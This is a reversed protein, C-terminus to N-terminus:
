KTEKKAPKCDKAWPCMRCKKGNEKFSVEYKGFCDPKAQGSRKEVKKIKNGETAM